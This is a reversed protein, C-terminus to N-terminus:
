ILNIILSIFLGISVTFSYNRLIKYKTKLTKSPKESLKNDEIKTMYNSVIMEAEKVIYEKDKDKAQENNKKNNKEITEFKKAYKNSKVIFIAEEIINSPLERLVVINKMGNTDMDEWGKM